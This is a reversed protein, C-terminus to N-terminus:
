WSLITQAAPYNGGHNPDHQKQTRICSENRKQCNAFGAIDEWREMLAKIAGDNGWTPPVSCKGCSHDIEQDTLFPAKGYEMELDCSQNFTGIKSIQDTKTKEDLEFFLAEM